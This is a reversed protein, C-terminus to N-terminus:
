VEYTAGPGFGMTQPEPPPLLGCGVVVEFAGAGVVVVLAGVVVVVVVTLGTVVVSTVLVFGAVVLAAGVLPPM